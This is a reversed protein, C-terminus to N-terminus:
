QKLYIGITYAQAAPVNRGALTAILSATLGIKAVVPQWYTRLGVNTYSQNNLYTGNFQYAETNFFPGNTASQRHAVIGALWLNRLPNAGVEGTLHLFNSYNQTMLGYGVEAFAYVRNRSMGVAVHPLITWGEFGTRLGVRDANTFTNARTDIGISLRNNLLSRRLGLGVNGLGVVSGSPGPNAAVDTSPGTRLAAYPLAARVEWGKGLGYAGEIQGIRNGVARYVAQESGTPGYVARYSLSTFSLQVFGKGRARVWPGGAPPDIGSWGLSPLGALLLLPLLRRIM